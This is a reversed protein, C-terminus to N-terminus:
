AVFCAFMRRQNVFTYRILSSHSPGVRPPPQRQWSGATPVQVPAGQHLPEIPLSEEDWEPVPSLGSSGLPANSFSTSRGRADGPQGQERQLKLQYHLGSSTPVAFLMMRGGPASSPGSEPSIEPPAAANVSSISRRAIQNSAQGTHPASGHFRKALLGAFWLLPQMADCYSRITCSSLNHFIWTSEHSRVKTAKNIKNTLIQIDIEKKTVCCCKPM